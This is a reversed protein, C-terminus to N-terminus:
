LEDQHYQIYQLRYGEIKSYMDVIYQQFLRGVRHITNFTGDNHPMIRYKYYQALTCKKNKRNTSTYCDPEWGKDGFPFILVHMLPDYMPHETNIRMLFQGNSHHASNKYVVIDRKSVTQNSDTPMIVAVDTGTPLNYRCPDVTNQTAKLILKIDETPNQKMVEGAHCYEKVYPNVEKMM